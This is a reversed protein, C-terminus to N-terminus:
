APVCLPDHIKRQSDAGSIVWCDWFSNGSIQCNRREQTHHVTYETTLLSQKIAALGTSNMTANLISCHAIHNFKRVRWAWIPPHLEIHKQFSEVQSRKYQILNKNALLKLENM